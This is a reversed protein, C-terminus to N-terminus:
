EDKIIHGDSLEIIRNCKSAIEMDHTVIVITYGKKNLNILENIISTSNETDLAGTPEDALIIKNGSVLARAIACRQQQGGSIQNPYKKKIDEIELKALVENIKKKRQTAGIKKPVLPIEINEFVTFDPILAFNQFIFSIKENRIKDRKGLSMKSVNINDIYCDGQTVTDMMGIINLLTSKGSGSKGTIAVLEGEEIVLNIEDLAVTKVVGTDYIKKVNELKIMNLM